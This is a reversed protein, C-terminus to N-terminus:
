FKGLCANIQNPKCLFIGASADSYTDINEACGLAIVDGSNNYFVFFILSDKLKPLPLTYMESGTSSITAQKEYLQIINLETRKEVNYDSLLKECSIGEGFVDLPYLYYYRFYSINNVVSYVYKPYFVIHFMVEPEGIPICGKKICVYDKTEKNSCDAITSCGKTDGYYKTDGSEGLNNSESCSIFIGLVITCCILKCYSM